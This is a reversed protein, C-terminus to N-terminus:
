EQQVYFTEGNEQVIQIYSLGANSDSNPDVDFEEVPDGTIEETEEELSEEAEEVLVEEIEENYVEEMLEEEDLKQLEEEQYKNVKEQRKPDLLRLNQNIYMIKGTPDDRIMRKHSRDTTAVSTCPLDSIAAAIKTLCSNKFFASWWTSPPMLAISKKVFAVNWVGKGTNYNALDVIIDRENLGFKSSLKTIVENGQAFDASSLHEGKFIPNLINAAFHLPQLVGTSLTKFKKLIQDSEEMSLLVMPDQFETIFHQELDLFAEPVESIKADENDLHNIWKIIPKILKIYATIKSWFEEDAILDKSIKGLYKDSKPASALVQLHEKNEIISELFAVSSCKRTGLIKLLLIGDSKESSKQAENLLDGLIDYQKIDKILTSTNMMLENVTPLEFLEELLKNFIQSACYYFSINHDEYKQEMVEWINDCNSLSDICVGLVRNAGVEEIVEFIKEMYLNADQVNTSLSISKYLVPDPTNLVFNIVGENKANSRYSCQIGLSIAERVKQDVSKKVNEYTTDLLTTSLREQTPLQFAPSLTNLLTRWHENDIISVPANSAYIAKALLEECYRQRQKSMRDILNIDNTPETYSNTSTNVLLGNNDDDSMPFDSESEQRKKMMDGKIKDKKATSILTEKVSGPCGICKQLHLSMRTSHRAYIQGCYRCKFTQLKQNPEKPQLIFSTELLKKPIFRRSVKQALNVKINQELAERIESPCASCKQLHSSMRSANRAYKQECHKCQFIDLKQNGDKPIMLFNEELIRKLNRVQGKKNFGHISTELIKGKVKEKLIEKLHPPSGSCKLLHVSMRTIHRAYQQSCYVCKYIELKQNAEKPQLTFCGDLVKKLKM